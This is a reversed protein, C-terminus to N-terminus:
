GFNPLDLMEHFKPGKNGDRCSLLHAGKLSDFSARYWAVAKRRWGQTKWRGMVASSSIFVDTADRLFTELMCCNRLCASDRSFCFFMSLGVLSLIRQGLPFASPGNCGELSYFWGLILSCCPTPQPAPIAFWLGLTVALVNRVLWPGCWM